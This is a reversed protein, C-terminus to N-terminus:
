ILGYNYIYQTHGVGRREFHEFHKLDESVIFYWIDLRKARKWQDLKVIQDLKLITLKEMYNSHEFCIRRLEKSDVFPLVQMIQEQNMVKMSFAEIMIPRARLQLMGKFWELMRISNQQMHEYLEHKYGYYYFGLHFSELGTKQNTLIHALDGFFTTMFDENRVVNKKEKVFKDSTILCGEETKRYSFRLYRTTKTNTYLEFLVSEGRVEIEIRRLQYNPKFDEIFNRLNVCVKRLSQIEPYECETLIRRLVNKPMESLIPPMKIYSIIPSHVTQFFTQQNFLLKSIQYSFFTM